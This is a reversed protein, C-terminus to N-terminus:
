AAPLPPAEAFMLARSLRELHARTIHQHEAEQRGAARFSRLYDEDLLADKALDTLLEWGIADLREAALVVELVEPSMLEPGRLLEQLAAMETAGVNVEPTSPELLVDGHGLEALLSEIMDAHLREEDRFREFDAILSAPIAVDHRLRFTALDYLTVAAREVLWRQRLKDVFRERDVDRRGFLRTKRTPATM